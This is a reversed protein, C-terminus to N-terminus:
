NTLNQVIRRTDSYIQNMGLAWYRSAAWVPAMVTVRESIAGIITATGSLVCTFTSSVYTAIEPVARIAADFMVRSINNLFSATNTTIDIIIKFLAVITAKIPESLEYTQMYFDIVKYGTYTSGLM